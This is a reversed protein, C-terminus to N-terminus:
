LLNPDEVGVSATQPVPKPATKAPVQRPVYPKNAVPADDNLLVRYDPSNETNKFNNKFARFSYKKDGVELTGSFYEAGDRSTRAWLGGNNGKKAPQAATNQNTATKINTDSM